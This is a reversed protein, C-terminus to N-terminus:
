AGQDYVHPSVQPFKTFIYEWIRLPWSANDSIRAPCTSRIHFCSIRVSSYKTDTKSLPLKYGWSVSPIVFSVSVWHCLHFSLILSHSSSQSSGTVVTLHWLPVSWCLSNLRMIKCTNIHLAEVSSEGEGAAGNYQLTADGKLTRHKIRHERSQVCPV